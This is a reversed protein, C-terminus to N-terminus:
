RTRRRPPRTPSAGMGATVPLQAMEGCAALALALASGRRRPAASTVPAHHFCAALMACEGNGRQLRSAAFRRHPRAGVAARAAPTLEGSNPYDCSSGRRDGRARRRRARGAGRRHGRRAARDHDRRHHQASSGAAACTGSRWSCWRCATRRRWRPTRRRARSAAQSVAPRFQRLAHLACERRRARLYKGSLRGGALPSYALLSMARSLVGRRPRRRRQAVRPQLQEPHDRVLCAWRARSARFEGVGWSTENSLGYHRIKGADIMAAM